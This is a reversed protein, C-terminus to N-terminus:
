SALPLYLISLSPKSGSSGAISSCLPPDRPVVSISRPNPNPCSTTLRGLLAIYAYHIAALAIPQTPSARSTRPFSGSRHPYAAHIYTPM